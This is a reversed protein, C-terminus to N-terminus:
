AAEEEDELYPRFVPAFIWRSVTIVFAFYGAVWIFGLGFFFLPFYRLLVFPVAWLAAVAFTRPAFAVSLLLASRLHGLLSNDFRAMLPFLLSAAMGGLVALTYFPFRLLSFSGQLKGFLIGDVAAAGIGLACLFFAVMGQRFNERMARFFPKVVGDERDTGLRYLVTNAAILAPGATFIPICCVILLLNTIIGDAVMSMMRFFLENRRQRNNM